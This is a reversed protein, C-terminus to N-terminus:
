FSATHRAGKVKRLILGNAEEGYAQAHRMWDLLMSFSKGGARAGGYLVEYINGAQLFATQPGPQASWLIERKNVQDLRAM